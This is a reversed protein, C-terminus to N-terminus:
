GAVYHALPTRSNAAMRALQDLGKRTDSATKAKDSTRLRYKFLWYTFENSEALEMSRKGSYGQEQRFQDLLESRPAWYIRVFGEESFDEQYRNGNSLHRKQVEREAALLLAEEVTVGYYYNLYGRYKDVGLLDRFRDADFPVPFRGAFLLEEKEHEPILGDVANCLREALLLWEFAEGGIFYNYSRGDYTEQPATWLAMAELLVTPWDGGAELGEKLHLIAEPESTPGNRQEDRM